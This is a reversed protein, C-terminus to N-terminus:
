RDERREQWTKVAALHAKRLMRAGWRWTRGGGKCRWCRRGLRGRGGGGGCWRCAREPRFWVLVVRGAALLLLFFTVTM